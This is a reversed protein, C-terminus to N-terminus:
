RGCCKKHKKGSGCPCPDNRGIKPEDRRFTRYDADVLKEEIGELHDHEHQFVQAEFGDIAAQEYEGEVTYYSVTISPYRDAIIKKGPWTLCGEHKKVPEGQFEMIHPDIVLRWKDEVMMACFRCKLCEGDISLQNASLGVADGRNRAYDLFSRLLERNESIWQEPAIIPLIMPTQKNLILQFKM